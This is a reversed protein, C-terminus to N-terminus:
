FPEAPTHPLKFDVVVPLHDSGVRPGTRRSLIEIDPSHLVHDIPIRLLPPFPVPWSPFIGRGQSANRLGSERLLNRFAACWPTANLDGILMLPHQADRAHRALEAFQANRNQSYIRGIPPLPHTALVVCRGYPTDIGAVISPVDFDGSYFVTTTAFPFKSWLGIGFPDDRLETIHHPYIDALIPQVANFWRNGVEELVVVDPTYAQICALVKQPDGRHFNVNILLARLPLSLGASVAEPPSPKRPCFPVLLSVNVATMALCTLAWSRKRQFLFWTGIVLLVWVYQVRFHSFLDLLWHWAGFFGLVSAVVVVFGAAALNKLNLVM